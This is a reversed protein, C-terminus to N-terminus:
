INQEGCSIHKWVRGRAHLGETAPGPRRTTAILPACCLVASCDLTSRIPVDALPAVNPACLFRRFAAARM